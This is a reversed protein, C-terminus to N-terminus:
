SIKSLEEQTMKGTKEVGCYFAILMIVFSVVGWEHKKDGIIISIIALVPLSKLICELKLRPTLQQYKPIEFNGYDSRTWKFMKKASVHMGTFYIGFLSIYIFLCAFLINIVSEWNM